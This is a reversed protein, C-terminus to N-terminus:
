VALDRIQLGGEMFPKKITDWKVLHLRRENNKGGEWLFHRLLAEMKSIFTKPALLISHQYLSLSSLVAKMLIIKGANNLWSAGWAHIKLKLKDLLPIWHAVKPNTKFIPIGLYKFSDWAWSGEMDLIRAIESLEKVSCNWSYITSKLFNIKSGSVERYIDLEKKFSRASNISAGGLFLTDDSFQAHNIDKVHHVMRLGPLIQTQQNHDHQFSFVSAQIAYLLPFFPCGQRLGRSAQFFDSPRGNVLPAIWPSAICSKVWNIIAPSFGMKKMVIFLFDHKVRDFANELDLKIVMGKEKQLYSSHIAEQVLVINDLIKRGKIFGGQNEPIIIPM